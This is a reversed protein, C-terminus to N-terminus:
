LHLSLFLHIIIREKYVLLYVFHNENVHSNDVEWHEYADHHRWWISVNEATSVREALFEGTVPSNGECLGTVRINWTKKSKRRFLRNFLCDHPQHNSVSDRENHRWTILVTKLLLCSIPQSSVVAYDEFFYKHCECMLNSTGFTCWALRWDTRVFENNRSYDNTSSQWQFLFNSFMHQSKCKYKVCCFTVSPRLDCAVVGIHYSYHCWNKSRLILSYIFLHIFLHIFLCSLVTFSLFASWENNM